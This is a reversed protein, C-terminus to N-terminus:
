PYLLCEKGNESPKRAPDEARRRLATVNGHELIGAVLPLADVPRVVDLPDDAHRAIADLHRVAQQVDIANGDVPQLDAVM